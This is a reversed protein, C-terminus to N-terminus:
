ARRRGAGVTEKMTKCEVPRTADRPPRLTAALRTWQRAPPAAAILMVVATAILAPWWLVIDHVRRDGLVMSAALAVSCAAFRAASRRMALLLCLAPVPWLYYWNMETEFAVRLFFAVAMIGLVVPLSHRRRCVAIALVCAVVIALLRTTGGGDLGPGLRSALSTLPTWSVYRPQFPQRVVVFLTRHPEGLLPAVLVLLSPLLLRWWLRAASRWSLRALVPAVGLLALPQFAIGLGLLVAARRARLAGFREMTLAAWLVFAVAVCDEPHGWYAVVNAVGVASVLALAFRQGPTFRWSRAVADLAFLVTSGLLVAAPGVVIWMSLAEGSLQHPPALGLVNGLGVLPALVFELAPPSTLAGNPRYIEAFHGHVIASSANVFSWFDGVRLVSHGFLSYAVVLVFTVMTAVVPAARREAWESLRDM